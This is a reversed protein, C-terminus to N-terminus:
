AQAEISAILARTKHERDRRVQQALARPLHKRKERKRKVEEFPVELTPMKIRERLKNAELGLAECIWVFSFEGVEDSMIWKQSEVTIAYAQRYTIQAENCRGRADRIARELLAALLAREPQRQPATGITQLKM